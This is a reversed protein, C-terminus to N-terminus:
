SKSISTKGKPFSFLVYPIVERLVCKTKFLRIHVRNPSWFVFFLLGETGLLRLLWGTLESNLNLKIKMIKVLFHLGKGSVLYLKM